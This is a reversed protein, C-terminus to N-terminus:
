STYRKDCTAKIRQIDSYLLTGKELLDDRLCTLFGRNVQLISHVKFLYRDLVAQAMSEQKFAQFPSSDDYQVPYIDVAGCGYTGQKNLQLLVSRIAKEIDDAAGIAVEGPYFM